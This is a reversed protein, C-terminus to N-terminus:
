ANEAELTDIRRELREFQAQFQAKLAEIESDAGHVDM